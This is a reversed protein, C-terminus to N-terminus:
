GVNNVENRAIQNALVSSSYDLVLVRSETVEGHIKNSPYGDMVVPYQVLRHQIQALGYSLSFVLLVLRIDLSLHYQM